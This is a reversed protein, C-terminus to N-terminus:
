VIERLSCPIPVLTLRSWDIAVGQVSLAALSALMQRWDDRGKTLSPLWIASDAPLCRSGLSSLTPKPGIELFLKVGQDHLTAISEAFRVTSRVHTRWYAATAFDGRM